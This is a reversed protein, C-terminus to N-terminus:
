YAEKYKQVGEVVTKLDKYKSWDDAKVKVNEESKRKEEIAGKRRLAYAIYKRRYKKKEDFWLLM